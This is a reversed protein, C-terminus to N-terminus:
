AKYERERMGMEMAMGPRRGKDGNNKPTPPPKRGPDVRPTNQKPPPKQGDKQAAVALSLGAMLILTLLIEKLIRMRFEM